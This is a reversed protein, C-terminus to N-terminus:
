RDRRLLELAEALTPDAARYAEAPADVLVAPELGRGEFPTGDPLLDLWRSAVVRIGPLFDFPAPNGSAGGTPLGVTTVTPLARMMLVFGETSSLCRPGQLLAIRRADPRAGRRPAIVREADPLFAFGPGGDRFRHKAYVRRRDTFRQAIRHALSESGGPNARVDIVLSPSSALQDIAFELRAEEAASLSFSQIRVYGPGAALAGVLFGRELVVIRNLSRRIVAENWNAIGRDSPATAVRGSPAEIWVHVDNLGALLDRLAAVLGERDKAALVAPARRAFLDSANAPRGAIGFHPYTSELHRRLADLARSTEEASPEPLPEVHLRVDDFLVSGTMSLLLVVRAKETKEPAVAEVSHDAWGRDGSLRETAVSGLTKGAGDIFQLVAGANEFQNGERAVGDARMALALRARDWPRCPVDQFVIRWRRTAADGSLRLSSRDPDAAVRSEPGSEDEAVGVAVTWAPPGADPANWAEDFAANRLGGEAAGSVLGACALLVGIPATLM